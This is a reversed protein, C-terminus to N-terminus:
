MHLRRRLERKLSRDMFLLIAALAVVAAAVCIISPWRVRLVGLALPIIPLFSLLINICLYVLQESLAGRLLVKTLIIMATLSVFFLIPVAFDLSWGRWGTLWDWLVCLVSLVVVQYLLGKPINKRKRIAVFLSIWMSGVGAAVIVSWWGGQPFIINVALSIVVAAVSVLILIRFFLNFQRYITPIHPFTGGCGDYEGALMGQCLPCQERDEAVKVKCKECYKM